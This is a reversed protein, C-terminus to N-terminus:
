SRVMPPVRPQRHHPALEPQRAALRLVARQAVVQQGPHGLRADVVGVGEARQRNLEESARTCAVYFIRKEEELQKLDITHALQDYAEHDTDGPLRIAVESETILSRVGPKRGICERGMGALIVRKFELGKAAHITMLRVTHPPVPMPISIGEEFVSELQETANTLPPWQAMWDLIQDCAMSRAHDDGSPPLLACAQRLAAVLGHTDKHALWTRLTSAIPHNGSLFTTPFGPSNVISSVMEIDANVWPSRLFYTWWTRDHPHELLLGLHLVDIIDQNSLQDSQGALTAPIGAQSLAAYGDDLIRKSRALIVTDTPNDLTQLYEAIRRGEDHGSDSHLYYVGGVHGRQSQLPTYSIPLDPTLPSPADFLRPFLGNFYDILPHNSRFNDTLTVIQGKIHPRTMLSKITDFIHPKAGRFGYISQKIDGVVFLCSRPTSSFHTIRDIIEWQVPDTDQCEDMLLHPYQNAISQAIHPNSVLTLAHTQLASFGMQHTQHCVTQYHSWIADFLTMAHTLLGHHRHHPSPNARHSHAWQTLLPRLTGIPAQTAWAMLSPHDQHTDLWHDSIQRWHAKEQTIIQFGPDIGIQHGWKKMIEHCFSHITKLQAHPLQRLWTTALSKQTPDTHILEHLAHTIRREFEGAAHKTFTLTLIHAPTLSPHHALIALYRAVLVATKGAGAGAEVLTHSTPDIALSQTPTLPM